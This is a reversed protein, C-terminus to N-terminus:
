FLGFFQKLIYKYDLHIIQKIVTTHLVKGNKPSPPVLSHKLWM